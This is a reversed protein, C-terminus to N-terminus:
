RREKDALKFHDNSGLTAGLLSGGIRASRSTINMSAYRM